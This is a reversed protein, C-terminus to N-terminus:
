ERGGGEGVRVLVQELVAACTDCRHCRKDCATSLEFWDPPFRTNDIISPAFLRIQKVTM